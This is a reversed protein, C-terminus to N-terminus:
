GYQVIFRSVVYWANGLMLSGKPIFYGEYWDDETSTHPSSFVNLSHLFAKFLVYVAMPTVPRWRIIEKVMACIYPLSLMDAFTPVRARGVVADLEDQARKQAEPHVLM